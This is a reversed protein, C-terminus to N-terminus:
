SILFYVSHSLKDPKVFCEFSGRLSNCSEGTEQVEGGAGLLLVLKFLIAKVKELKMSSQM